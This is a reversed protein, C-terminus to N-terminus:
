VDICIYAVSGWLQSNAVLLGCFIYGVHPVSTRYTKHFPEGLDYVSAFDGIKKANHIATGITTTNVHVSSM